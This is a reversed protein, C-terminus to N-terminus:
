YLVEENQMMSEIENRKKWILVQLRRAGIAVGLSSLVIWTMLLILTYMDDLSDKCFTSEITPIVSYVMECNFIQSMSNDLRKYSKVLPTELGLDIADKDNEYLKYRINYLSANIDIPFCNYYYGLAQDPVPYENKYLAGNISDCLDGYFFFFKANYGELVLISPVAFFLIVSVLCELKELKLLFFLFALIILFYYGAFVFATIKTRKSDDDLIRQTREKTNQIYKEIKVKFNEMYEEDPLNFKSNNKRFFIVENNISPYTEDSKSISEVAVNFASEINKGVSISKVLVIAFLIASVLTSLIMILWTLNRYIKNVQSVKKPGTCKRCVFRVLLYFIIFITPFIAIIVFIILLFNIKDWYEEKEPQFSQPIYSMTTTFSRKLQIINEYSAREEPSLTKEFRPDESEALSILIGLPTLPTKPCKTKTDFQLFNQNSTQILLIISLLFGLKVSAKNKM